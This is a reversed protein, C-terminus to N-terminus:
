VYVLSNLVSSLQHPFVAAHVLVSDVFLVHCRGFLYYRFFMTVDNTYISIKVMPLFLGARGQRNAVPQTAAASSSSRQCGGFPGYGAALVEMFAMRKSVCNKAPTNRQWHVFCQARADCRTLLFWMSPSLQWFNPSAHGKARCLQLSSHQIM